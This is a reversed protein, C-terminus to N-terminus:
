AATGVTTPMEWGKINLPAGSPQSGGEVKPRWRFAKQAAGWGYATRYTLIEFIEEPKLSFTFLHM